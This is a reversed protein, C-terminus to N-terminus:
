GARAGPGADKQRLARLRDRLQAAREFEQTEIAQNLQRELREVESIPKTNEIQLALERLAVLSRQREYQFTEDELDPLNEITEVAARILEMAKQYQERELHLMASAVANMRVVYPRWQELHMQDQEREAHRHVFDFLRLNRATDRATRAWDKIQFLHLYRFYYLTGENFLGTCEDSSLNFDEEKGAERARALRELHYELLSEKGHPHLGDPRGELEYQEVGLPSRVQMIEHGELGRVTRVTKEPDYPWQALWERLDADDTM